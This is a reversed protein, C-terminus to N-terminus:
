DDQCNCKQVGADDGIPRQLRGTRRQAIHSMSEQLNRPPQPRGPKQDTQHASKDDDLAPRVLAPQHLVQKCPNNIEGRQKGDDSINEIERDLAQKRRRANDRDDQAKGELAREAVHKGADHQAKAARIPWAVPNADFASSLATDDLDVPAGRVNQGGFAIERDDRIARDAFRLDYVGARRGSHMADRDVHLHLGPRNNRDGRIEDAAGDQITAQDDLRRRRGDRQLCYVRGQM